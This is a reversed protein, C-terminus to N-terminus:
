NREEAMHRNSTTQGMIDREVRMARQQQEKTVKNMNLSTSYINDSYNTRKGEFQNFPKHDGFASELDNLAGLNASSSSLWSTKELARERGPKSAQQPASTTQNSASIIAEDEQQMEQM